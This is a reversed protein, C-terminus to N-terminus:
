WARIFDIGEFDFEGSSMAVVGNQMRSGFTEVM